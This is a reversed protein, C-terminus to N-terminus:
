KQCRKCLKFYIEEYKPLVKPLDFSKAHEFANEKMENLLQTNSLLSSLDKSMKKVDGVDSLFGTYGDKNVRIEYWTPLGQINSPFFLYWM